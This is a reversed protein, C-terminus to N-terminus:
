IGADARDEPYEDEASPSTRRSLLGLPLWLLRLFAVALWPGLVLLWAWISFGALHSYLDAYFTAMSAEPRYEGLLRQGVLYVLAPLVLLGFGGFAGLLIAERRLWHMIADGPGAMWEPM